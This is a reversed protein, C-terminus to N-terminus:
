LVPVFVASNRIMTDIPTGTPVEAEGGRVFAFFLLPWLFFLSITALVKPYLKSEGTLIQELDVKYEKGNVDFVEGDRITLKGPVGLFGAKKSYMVNLVARDGDKFIVVNNIAINKCIQAEIKQGTQVDNSTIKHTVIVPVKTRANIKIRRVVPKKEEEELPTENTTNADKVSQVNAKPLIKVKEEPKDQLDQEELAYCAPACFESVFFMFMLFTIIRRFNKYM